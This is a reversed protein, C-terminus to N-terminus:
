AAEVLGTSSLPRWLCYFNLTGDTIDGTGVTAIIDQGNAIIRPSTVVAEITTPTADTWAENNDIATATTQAILGATNGSIGVEISGGGASVLDESCTAFVVVLVDGTVTYLSVSGVAGNGAAGSFTVTKLAKFSENSCITKHNRDIDLQAQAKM